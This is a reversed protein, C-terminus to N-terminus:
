LGGYISSCSRCGGVTCEGELDGELPYVLVDVVEDCTSISPEIRGLQGEWSLEGQLGALGLVDAVVAGEPGHTHHGSRALVGPSREGLPSDQDGLAVDEELSPFCLTYRRVVQHLRRRKTNIREALHSPTYITPANPPDITSKSHSMCTSKPVRVRRSHSESKLMREELCICLMAMANPLKPHIVRTIVAIKKSQKNTQSVRQVKQELYTICIM